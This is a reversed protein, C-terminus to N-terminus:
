RFFISSVDNYPEGYMDQVFYRINMSMNQLFAGEIQDVANSWISKICTLQMRDGDVKVTIKFENENVKRAKVFEGVIIEMGNRMIVRM